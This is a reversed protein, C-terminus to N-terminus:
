TGAGKRSSDRQTPPRGTTLSRTRRSRISVHERLRQGGAIRPRSGGGGLDQAHQQAVDDEILPARQVGLALPGRAGLRGEQPPRGVGPRDHGVVLEPPRQILQEVGIPGAHQRGHDDPGDSREVALQILHM